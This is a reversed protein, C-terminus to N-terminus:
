LHDQLWKLLDRVVEQKNVENFLEHRAQAYLKLETQAHGSKLWAKHLRKLGKPASVPDADGGIILMPLDANIKKLQQISSIEELGHFLDSWLQNSCRFGCLPDDIYKQVEKPDRSLWDFDTENPRFRRNYGAFTLQHIVHSFGTPGQRLIELKSVGLALTLLPRPVLNSGSLIAGAIKPNYRTLYGQLTYSGMSHGLLFLPATHQDTIHEVVRKTDLLVSEWGRDGFHGQIGRNKEIAIGHGRHDHAYVTFGIENLKMALEHYRASHEGMGHSIHVVGRLEGKTDWCCTPILHDDHLSPLSIESVLSPESTLTSM